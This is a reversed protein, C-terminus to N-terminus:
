ATSCSSAAATSKGSLRITPFAATRVLFLNLFVTVVTKLILPNNMCAPPPLAHSTDLGALWCCVLVADLYVQLLRSQLADLQSSSISLQYFTPCTAVRVTSVSNKLEKAAANYKRWLARVAEVLTQLVYAGAVWRLLGVLM